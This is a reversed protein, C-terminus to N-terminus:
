VQSCQLGDTQDGHRYVTPAGAMNAELFRCCHAEHTRLLLGIPVVRFLGVVNTVGQAAIFKVACSYGQMHPCQSSHVMLVTYSVDIYSANIFDGQCEECGDIAKM